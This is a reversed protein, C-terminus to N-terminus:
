TPVVGWREARDWPWRMSAVKEATEVVPEVDLCLLCRNGRAPSPAHSQPSKCIAFVAAGLHSAPGHKWPCSRGHIAVVAAGTAAAVDCWGGADGITVAALRCCAAAIVPDRTGLPDVGELPALSFVRAGIRNQIRAGVERLSARSWGNRRPALLVVSASRAVRSLLARAAAVAWTPLRLRPPTPGPDFGAARAGDLWHVIAHQGRGPFPASAICLRPPSGDIWASCRRVAPRLDIILSGIERSCCVREGGVHAAVLRRAFRRGLVRVSAHPFRTTVADVVGVALVARGVKSAGFDFVLTSPALHDVRRRFSQGQTLAEMDRLVTVGM